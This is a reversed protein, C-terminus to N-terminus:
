LGSRMEVYCVSGIRSKGISLIKALGCWIWHLGVAVYRVLGCLGYRVSGLRNGVSGQRVWVYCLIRAAGYRNM